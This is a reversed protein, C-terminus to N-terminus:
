TMNTYTCTTRTWIECTSGETITNTIGVSPLCEFDEHTSETYANIEVNGKISKLDYADEKRVINSRALIICTTVVLALITVILVVVLSSVSVCHMCHWLQLLRDNFKPKTFPHKINTYYCRYWILLMLLLFSPTKSYLSLCSSIKMVPWLRYLLGVSAEMQQYTLVLSM